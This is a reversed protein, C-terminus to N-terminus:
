PTRYWITTGESSSTGDFACFRFGYLTAPSLGSYTYTTIGAELSVTSADSCDSPTASQVSAPAVKVRNAKGLNREWAFSISTATAATIRVDPDMPRSVNRHLYVAGSNAASNDSSAGSGNTIASVNADEEPTGIVLLDGSLAVSRGYADGLAESTSNTNAAKLYAELSWVAADRKFIYVAGSNSSSNNEGATGGLTVTNQSADEAPAGVALTNGSLAVSSGFADGANANAAKIYAEQSWATGNRRYVYVAGSDALTNDSTTPTGNTITSQSNDEQAAGVALTNGHVALSSGFSDGVTETSQSTNFAKVYAEAMWYPAVASTRRYLFVAGSDKSSKDASALAGNTITTQNSDEKPDAVALTDGFLSIQQGFADGSYANSAKIYAEQTWWPAGSLSRRFISAAGSNSLGSNEPGQPGETTITTQLADDSPSGVALLDGSLSVSHGFENGLRMNSAKIFAELNWTAGSRRYLYVAGSNTSMSNDSTPVTTTIVKQNSDEKPVGVALSNGSLAVSQGFEDASSDFGNAPKIFAEQAWLTNSSNRVFVYVAGSDTSGNNTSGSPTITNQNSDECPAGAAVTHGSVAISRGFSDNADPKDAKLYAEQEWSGIVRISFDTSSSSGFNDKVTLTVTSTGKGVPTLAITCQTSDGSISIGQSPLLTTDNSVAKLDNKCVLASDSDTLTTKVIVSNGQQVSVGEVATLNPPDNIARVTLTFTGETTATGDSLNLTVTTSGSQNQEPSLTIMCNPFEGAFSVNTSTLLATNTVNKVALASSCVFNSDIDSVNVPADIVATDEDTVLAPLSTFNPADNVPRVSLVFGGVSTSGQNDTVTVSISAQGSENPQPTMKIKCVGSSDVFALAADPILKQNNSLAHLSLSSCSLTSDIDQITLTNEILTDEDGTMNVAFLTPPDNVPVVNLSLTATNSDAQGDNTKFTVVVSGSADKKPKLTAKCTPWIGSWTVADNLEVISPVSSTYTLVNGTCKQTPGDADAISININLPTDEPTSWGGAPTTEVTLVPANNQNSVVLNFESSATLSGDSGLVLVQLSGTAQAAPSLSLFCNPVQGGITVRSHPLVAADTSYVSISSTCSVNSDPDPDFFLVPINNLASNPQMWMGKLPSLIPSTNNASIRYVPSLRIESGSEGALRFFVDGEETFPFASRNWGCKSEAASTMSTSQRVSTYSADTCASFDSVVFSGSPASPWAPVTTSQGDWRSLEVENKSFAIRTPVEESFSNNWSLRASVDTSENRVQTWLSFIKGEAIPALPLSSVAMTRKQAENDPSDVANEPFQLAVKRDIAPVAASGDPNPPLPTPEATNELPSQGAAFVRVRNISEVIDAPLEIDSIVINQPQSEPLPNQNDQLTFKLPLVRGLVAGLPVTFEGKDNSTAEYSGDLSRASANAQPTGDARVIVFSLSFDNLPKLDKDTGIPTQSQVRDAPPTARKPAGKCSPLVIAWAICQVLITGLIKM